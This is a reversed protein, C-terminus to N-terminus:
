ASLKVYPEERKVVAFMRLVLKNAVANLVSLRHKGEALKRKYYGRLQPDHQVASCAAQTLVGKLTKNRYPSTRTAGRVSQGSRYGFPALGCHCAFKRADTFRTFNSTEVICEVASVFGISVIRILKQYNQWLEAHEKLIRVALAEVERIKANMQTILEQHYEMVDCVDLTKGTIRLTALSNKIGTRIKVYQRRTTMLVKLKRLAQAPLHYAELSHRYRLTYQAIRVADVRDDKGRVLGMSRKLELPNIMSFTVDYESLLTALLYGYHGTHEMCVWATADAQRALLRCFTKIGKPTNEARGQRLIVADSGLLCYDFYQKSIDLGVYFTNM